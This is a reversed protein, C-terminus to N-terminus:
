MVPSIIRTSPPSCRYPVDTASRSESADVACTRGAARLRATAGPLAYYRVGYSLPVAEAKALATKAETSLLSLHEENASTM